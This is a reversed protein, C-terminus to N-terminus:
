EVQGEVGCSPCNTTTGIQSPLVVFIVDCASCQVHKADVQKFEAM